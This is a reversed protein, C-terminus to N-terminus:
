ADHASSSDTETLTPRQPAPPTLGTAPLCCRFGLNAVRTMLPMASRAQATTHTHFYSDFAGGRIEAMPENSLVQVNDTAALVYQTNVWEWVNGILQRVGSTTNGELFEQVSATGHRQSSWINAYQPDFSDGWPYRPERGTEANTNEWVAARQWEASTPMRKGAWQAYANAEYWCIGVVPHSETGAAPQGDCWHAPGPHRTQDRFQSLTPVLQEPWYNPNEYGGDTIFQKYDANTVCWRDIYVSEVPTPGIVHPLLAFGKDTTTAYEAVLSVNGAPVLAMDHEIAKWAFRMSEGDFPVGDRPRVINAYRRLRILQRIDAPAEPFDLVPVAFEPEPALKPVSPQFLRFPSTLISTLTVPRDSGRNTPQLVM